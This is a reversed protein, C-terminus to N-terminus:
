RIQSKAEESCHFEKFKLLFETRVVWRKKKKRRKNAAGHTGEQYSEAQSGHSFFFFFFFFLSLSLLLPLSFLFSTTRDIHIM